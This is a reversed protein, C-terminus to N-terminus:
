RNRKAQALAAATEIALDRATEIATEIRDLSVMAIEEWKATIAREEQIRRRYVAGPVIRETFFAWIILLAGGLLGGRSVLDLWSGPDEASLLLSLTWTM